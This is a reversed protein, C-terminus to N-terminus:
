NRSDYQKTNSNAVASQVHSSQSSSSLTSSLLSISFFLSSMSSKSNNFNHDKGKHKKYNACDSSRAVGM